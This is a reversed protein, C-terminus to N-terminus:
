QTSVQKQPQPLRALQSERICGLAAATTNGGQGDWEITGTVGPWPALDRVADCIRARNLGAKRVAAILLAASDYSYAAPYDPVEGFRDRFGSVFGAPAKDPDFLLPFVAGEASAGAEERFLRRGMDPGGFLPGTFGARRLAVCLRASDRAGAVLAAARAGSELIQRALRGAENTNPGFVCHYCAVRKRRSLCATLEAAFRRADHDDASAIAFPADRVAGDMAGALLPALAPDGPLCSFMWPVNALNVTKDTSGPSVLTLRAKAVIQEALHTSPGDVGGILAWVRDEYALRALSGVGTSWPNESWVPALRFPKGRYGGTRNAEEVALSAGRWANGHRPDSPDGPGFYGIVVESFEAPPPQERGPGAYVAPQSRLAFFADKEDSEAADAGAPWAEAVLAWLALRCWLPCPLRPLRHTM